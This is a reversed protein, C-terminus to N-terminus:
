LPHRFCPALGSRYKGTLFPHRIDENASIFGNRSVRMFILLQMINLARGPLM